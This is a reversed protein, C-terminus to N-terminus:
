PVIAKDKACGRIEQANGNRVHYADLTSSVTKSELRKEYNNSSSFTYKRSDLADTGWSGPCM